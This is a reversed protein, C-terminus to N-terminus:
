VVIWKLMHCAINSQCWCLLGSWFWLCAEHTEPCIRNSSEPEWDWSLTPWRSSNGEFNINMHRVRCALCTLAFVSLSYLPIPPCNWNCNCGCVRGWIVSLTLRSRSSLACLSLLLPLCLCLSLLYLFGCFCCIGSASKGGGVGRWRAKDRTKRKHLVLHCTSCKLSVCGTALCIGFWRGLPTQSRTFFRPLSLSLPAPPPSVALSTSRSLRSM